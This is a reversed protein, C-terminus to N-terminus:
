NPNHEVNVNAIGSMKASVESYTNNSLVNYISSLSVDYQLALEAASLQDAFFINRIEKAKVKNLKGAGCLKRIKVKSTDVKYAMCNINKLYPKIKINFKDYERAGIYITPKEKHFNLTATIDLDRKLISILYNVENVNFSQTAINCYKKNQNNTGDQAIWHAVIFADLKLDLPVCKKGNPYWKTRLNKFIPHTITVFYCNELFEGTKTNDVKGNLGAKPKNEKGFVLKRSFPLFIQRIFEVYEENAKKQKIRFRGTNYITGDGLLSAVMTKSQLETLEKPFVDLKIRM